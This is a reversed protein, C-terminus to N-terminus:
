STLHTFLSSNLYLLGLDLDRRVVVVLMANILSNIQYSKKKKKKLVMATINKMMWWTVGQFLERVAYSILNNKLYFIGIVVKM